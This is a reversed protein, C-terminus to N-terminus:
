QISKAISLLERIGSDLWFLLRKVPSMHAFSKLIQNALSAPIVGGTQRSYRLVTYYARLSQNVTLLRQLICPLDTSTSKMNVLILACAEIFSKSDSLDNRACANLILQEWEPPYKTLNPLEEFFFMGFAPDGAAAGALAEEFTAFNSSTM